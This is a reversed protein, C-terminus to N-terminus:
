AAIGTRYHKMAVNNSVISGHCMGGRAAVVYVMGMRYQQRRRISIIRRRQANGRRTALYNQYSLAAM